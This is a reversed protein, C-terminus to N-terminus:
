GRLHSIKLLKSRQEKDPMEIDFYNVVIKGPDVVEVYKKNILRDASAQAVSIFGTANRKDFREITSIM